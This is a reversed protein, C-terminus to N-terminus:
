SSIRSGSLNSIANVAMAESSYGVPDLLAGDSARKIVYAAGSWEVKHVGDNYLGDRVARFSGVREIVLVAEVGTAHSVLARAYWSEDFGVVLLEDLKILATNRNCQVRRWIGPSRLDDAVMGKPLNVMVRRNHLGSEVRVGSPEVTPTPANLSASNAAPGEVTAPSKKATAASM